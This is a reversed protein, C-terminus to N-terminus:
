KGKKRLKVIETKLELVWLLFEKNVIVNGDATFGLPNKQVAEGPSLVDYSSYLAPNYRSCGSGSLIIALLIFILWGAMVAAGWREARKNSRSFSKVSQRM